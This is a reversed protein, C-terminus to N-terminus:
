YAHYLYIPPYHRENRRDFRNKGSLAPLHVFGNKLLMVDPEIPGCKIVGGCRYSSCLKWAVVTGYPPMCKEELEQRDTSIPDLFDVLSSADGFFRVQQPCM